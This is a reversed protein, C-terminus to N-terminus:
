TDGHRAAHRRSPRMSRRGMGLLGLLASLARKCMSLRKTEQIKVPDASKQESILGTLAPDQLPAGLIHTLERKWHSACRRTQSAVTPNSNHYDGEGFWPHQVGHGDVVGSKGSIGRVNGMRSCRNSTPSLGQHTWPLSRQGRDIGVTPLADSDEEGALHFGTEDCIPVESVCARLHAAMGRM